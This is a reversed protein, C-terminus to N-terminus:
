LIHILSSRNKQQQILDVNHNWLFDADNMMLKANQLLSEDIQSEEFEIFFFFFSIVLSYSLTLSLSLMRALTLECFRSFFSM